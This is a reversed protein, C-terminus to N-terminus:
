AALLREPHKHSLWAPERRTPFRTSVSPRVALIRGLMRRLIRRSAATPKGCMRCTRTHAPTTIARAECRVTRAFRCPSSPM